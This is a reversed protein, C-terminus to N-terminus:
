EGGGEEAREKELKEQRKREAEKEQEFYDEGVAGECARLDELTQAAIACQVSERTSRARCSRVMAKPDAGIDTKELGTLRRINEVAQECAPESPKRSDCAASPLAFALALALAAMIRLRM